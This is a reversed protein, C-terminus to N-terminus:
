IEEIVKRLERYLPLKEVLVLHESERIYRICELRADDTANPFAEELLTFSELATIYDGQIFFKAFTRLHASFDLGSQWCAAILAALYEGFDRSELSTVIVPVADASKIESLLSLIETRVEFPTKRNIKKFLYPIMNVSGSNRIEYIAPTVIGPDDSDLAKIWAKEMGTLKEPSVTNKPSLTM